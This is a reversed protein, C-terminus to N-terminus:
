IQQRLFESLLLIKTVILDIDTSPVKTHQGRLIEVGM